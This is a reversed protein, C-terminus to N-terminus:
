GEVKVKVTHICAEDGNGKSSITEVIYNKMPIKGEEALVELMRQISGGYPTCYHYPLGELKTIDTCLICNDDIIYYFDKTVKKITVDSNYFIKFFDKIYDTFKSHKKSYIKLFDDMIGEGLKRLLSKGRKEDCREYCYYLVAPYIMTIVMTGIQKNLFDKPNGRENFKPDSM